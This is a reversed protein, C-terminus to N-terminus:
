YNQLRDKILYAWVRTIIDSALLVALMMFLTRSLNLQNFGFAILGWGIILWQIIYFTTVNKSWFYFLNMVPYNGMINIIFQCCYLWILVIGINTITAGPGGRLFYGIHWEPNSTTIVFGLTTIIGGWFLSGNFLLQFHDNAIIKRGFILGSLPYALWPFLPFMAGHEKDGWLLKLFEDIFPLGSHIDWIFPSVFIIFLITILIMTIPPAYHKILMCFAYALGAFQLIDGIFFEIIPTHYELEPASSIGSNILLWMPLALRAINLLYGLFFLRMARQVGQQLSQTSTAIFIGMIFMFVPAAPYSGLWKIITGITSNYADPQAYFGLVHVLVMFLIALGRALDLAIIRPPKRPAETKSLTMM